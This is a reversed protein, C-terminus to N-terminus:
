EGGGTVEVVIKDDHSATVAAANPVPGACDM